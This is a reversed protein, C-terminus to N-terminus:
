GTCTSLHALSHRDGPKVRLPKGVAKRVSAIDKLGNGTMAIVVTETGSFFNGSTAMKIFGAFGAVGAPEGFVGTSRALIRMAQLIEEDTVAVTTGGSTRIARLAKAWNRPAGVSISDALTDAKGFEVRTAGAQIACHIPKSGEAQVGILKPIRDILGLQALDGFGKYLGSICCGDGVAIFAYDPVEWHLQECIEMGLTKKGEVLYPNIACNRNYWGYHEIAQTSLTFTEAYDGEVLMVHSGYILLQAVKAEPAAHPVFIYTEVGGAASFGSLSSAANGTSSCAVVHKGLHLARNVAVASARDKTSGTPNRGEDKVLLRRVGYESALHPAGSLPTWGCHLRRIVELPMDPLVPAYRWMSRDPNAALAKHTLEKRAAVYDYLVDLTGDIGCSPCTYEVDSPDHTKGCLVCRLGAVKAVALVVKLNV